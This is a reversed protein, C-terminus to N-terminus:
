VAVGNHLYPLGPAGTLGSGWQSPATHHRRPGPGQPRTQLMVRARVAAGSVLIRGRAWVQSGNEVGRASGGRRRTLADVIVKVHADDIPPADRNLNCNGGCRLGMRQSCVDRWTGAGLRELSAPRTNTCCAVAAGKGRTRTRVGEWEEGIQLCRGLIDGIQINHWM